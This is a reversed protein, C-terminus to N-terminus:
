SNHNSLFCVFPKSSSIGPPVNFGDLFFYGVILVETIKRVVTTTQTGRHTLISLLPVTFCKKKYKNTSTM